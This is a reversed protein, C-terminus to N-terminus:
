PLKRRLRLLPSPGRYTTWKWYTFNTVLGEWMIRMHGYVHGAWYGAGRQKILRLTAAFWVFPSLVLCVGLIVGIGFCFQLFLKEM